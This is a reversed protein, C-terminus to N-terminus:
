CEQDVLETYKSVKWDDEPNVQLRILRRVEGPPNRKATDDDVVFAKAPDRCVDVLFGGGQPSRRTHLVTTEWDGVLRTNRARHADVYGELLWEEEGAAVDAAGTLRGDDSWGSDPNRTAGDSFAFYAEVAAVARDTGSMAPAAAMDVDEAPDGSPIALWVGVGVIVIVAVLVVVSRRWEM